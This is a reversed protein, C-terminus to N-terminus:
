SETAWAELRHDRLYSMVQDPNSFRSVINDSNRKATQQPGFGTPDVGLFRGIEAIGAETRVMTYDIEMMPKRAQERVHGYLTRRKAVFRSFEEPRFAVTARAISQGVRAAGQGTAAAVKHSSYAALLNNRTLIIKRTGAGRGLIPETIEDAGIHHKFGVAAKDASKAVIERLLKTPKALRLALNDWEPAINGRIWGLAGEGRANKSPWGADSFIAPLCRVDKHTSLWQTLMSSGTRPMSLVVFKVPGTDSRGTNTEASSLDRPSSQSLESM